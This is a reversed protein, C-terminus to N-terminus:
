CISNKLAVPKHPKPSAFRVQLDFANIQWKYQKTNICGTQSIGGALIGRFTGPQDSPSAENFAISGFCPDPASGVVQCSQWCAQDPNYLFFEDSLKSSSKKGGFILLLSSNGLRVASHRFLPTPLRPMQRWQPSAGGEFLWCDSLACSPSTRGGVLMTGYDGLDTLAFCMRAPPGSSPLQPAQPESDLSFIDYTPERSNLSLGLLNLAFRQGFANSSIMANGFRRRITKPSSKGVIEVQLGAPAKQGTSWTSPPEQLSSLQSRSTSAHLVIYHRAFLIFEEWEDFPEVDDLATREADSVFQDSSWTQWLDKVEVFPWGREQFRGSQSEVTPYVEISRLPTKLKDFHSLMQQAFPHSKGFPLIQELLCFDNELYLNAYLVRLISHSLQIPLIIM